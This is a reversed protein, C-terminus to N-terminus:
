VIVTNIDGNAEFILFQLLFILKLYVNDLIMLTDHQVLKLHGGTEFPRHDFKIILKIILLSFTLFQQYLHLGWGM